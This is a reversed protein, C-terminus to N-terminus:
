LQLQVMYSVASDLMKSREDSGSLRLARTKACPWESAPFLGPAFLKVFNNLNYFFKIQRSAICLQQYIPFLM